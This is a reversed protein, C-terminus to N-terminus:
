ARDSSHDKRLSLGTLVLGAILVAGGGWLAVSGLTWFAYANNLMGRLSNGMFLTERMKGLEAVKPNTPDSKSLKMFEGSVESFTKGKSMHELHAAIYHEAFARAQPGTTLTQGAYKELAAKQEPSQLAPGEPMTIRQASLLDSVQSHAFIGAIPLVIGLITLVIGFVRFVPKYTNM